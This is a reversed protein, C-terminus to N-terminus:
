LGGPDFYTIFYAVSEAITLLIVPWRTWGPEFRGSPFLFPLPLFLATGIGYLMAIVVGTAGLGASSGEVLVTMLAGSMMMALWDDSRRWFIILAVAALSLRALISVPLYFGLISFPLGMQEATRVDEESIAAPACAADLAACSPLPARVSNTVHVAFATFSAAALLIWFVRAPLLWRSRLITIDSGSPAM